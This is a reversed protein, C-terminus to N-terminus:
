EADSFMSYMDTVVSVDWKQLDGDFLSCLLVHHGHRDREARRVKLPRRYVIGCQLVHQGLRDRGIRGM